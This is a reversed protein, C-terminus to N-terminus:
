RRVAQRGAATRAQKAANLALDAALVVEGPPAGAAGTAVGVSISPTGWALPLRAVAAQLRRGLEHAAAPDCDVILAVFEDGGTRALVDGPRLQTAVTLAVHSLLKDGAAHGHRDNTNKLYDVDIAIVAFPVRPMQQLRMDLVRRNAIGTLPDTLSLDEARRHADSNRLALAAITTLTTLHRLQVPTLQAGQRGTVALIAVIGEDGVLPFLAGHRLGADRIVGAVAPGFDEPRFSSMVPRGTELVQRAYPHDALPFRADATSITVSPDNIGTMVLEPGDVLLIVARRPSEGPASCLETAAATIASFIAARDLTAGMHEAAVNLARLQRITEMQETIDRSCSVYGSIADDATRIPATSISLWRVTSDAIKRIGMLQANSSKGTRIAAALPGDALALSSGDESIPQWKELIAAVTPEREDLEYIRSAAPNRSVVAGDRDFVQVADSLTELVTRLEAASGAHREDAKEVRFTIAVALAAALTLGVLLGVAARMSASRDTVALSGALPTSVSVAWGIGPVPAGAAVSDTSTVLSTRGALAGIIESASAASSHGAIGSPGTLVNGTQDTVVLTVQQLHALSDAVQQLSGVRYGIFVIGVIPGSPRSRVPTAVAVVQPAGAVASVYGTSVYARGTRMVGQYWDRYSFGEGIVAPAPPAVARIVGGADAYAAFQFESRLAAVGALAAELPTLELASPQGSGVAAVFTPDIVTAAEIDEVATMQQAVLTATVEATASLKSTETALDANYSGQIFAVALVGIIVIASVAILAVAATRSRM